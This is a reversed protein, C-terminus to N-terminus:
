ELDDYSLKGIYKIGETVFMNQLLIEFDISCNSVNYSISTDYKELVGKKVLENLVIIIDDELTKERELQYISEGIRDNFINKLKPITNQLLILSTLYKYENNYNSLSSDSAIYNTLGNTAVVRDYYPSLRFTMIGKKNLTNIQDEDLYLNLFYDENLPKGTINGSTQIKALEFAIVLSSNFKNFDRRKILSDYIIAMLFRYESLTKNSHTVDMFAVVEDIHKSISTKDNKIGNTNVQMIGLSIISFRLQSICFSLLQEYFSCTRGDLYRHTVTDNYNIDSLVIYDIELGQILDYSVELAKFKDNNSDDLGSNGGSLKKSENIYYFSEDFETYEDITSYVFVINEGNITDENIKKMLMYLNPFDTYHYIKKDLNLFLPFIMEIGTLTINISVNNYVDNSYISKFILAEEIIEDKTNIKFSATAHEGNYKMSFVSINYNNVDDKIEKYSNYISSNRGYVRIIDKENDIELVENTVGYEANGLILINKITSIDKSQKKYLNSVKM